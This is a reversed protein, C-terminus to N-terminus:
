QQPIMQLSIYQNINGISCLLGCVSDQVVTKVVGSFMEKYVQGVLLIHASHAGFVLHKAKVWNYSHSNENENMDVLCLLLKSSFSSVTLDKLGVRAM